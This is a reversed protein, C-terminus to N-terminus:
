SIPRDLDLLAAIEVVEPGDVRLDRGDGVRACVQVVEVLLVLREEHREGRLVIQDEHVLEHLPQALPDPSVFDSAPVARYQTSGESCELEERSVLDIESEIQKKRFSENKKKDYDCGTRM